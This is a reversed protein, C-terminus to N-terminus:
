CDMGLRDLPGVTLFSPFNRAEKHSEKAGSFTLRVAPLWENRFKRSVGIVSHGSEVRQGGTDKLRTGYNPTTGHLAVNWILKATPDAV